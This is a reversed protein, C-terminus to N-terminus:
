IADIGLVGIALAALYGTWDDAIAVAIWISL